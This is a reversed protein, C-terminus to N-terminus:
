TGDSTWSNLISVESRQVKKESTTIMITGEREICQETLKIASGKRQEVAGRRRRDKVDQEEWMVSANVQYDLLLHTLPNRLLVFM